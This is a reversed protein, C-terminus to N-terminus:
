EEDWIGRHPAGASFPGGNANSGANELSEQTPSSTVVNFGGLDIVDLAPANYKKKM